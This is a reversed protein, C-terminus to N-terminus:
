KRNSDSATREGRYFSDGMRQAGLTLTPYMDVSLMKGKTPKQKTKDEDGEAPFQCKEGWVERDERNGKQLWFWFVLTDCDDEQLFFIWSQRPKTETRIGGWDKAEFAWRTARGRNFLHTSGWVSLGFPGGKKRGAWRVVCHRWREKQEWEDFPWFADFSLKFHSLTSHKHIKM